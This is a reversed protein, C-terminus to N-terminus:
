ALKAYLVVCNEGYDKPCEPCTTFGQFLRETHQERPSSNRCRTWGSRLMGFPDRSCRRWSAVQSTCWRRARSTRPRKSISTRVGLHVSKAWCAGRSGRDARPCPRDQPRPEAARPFAHPRAGQRFTQRALHAGRSRDARARFSSLVGRARRSAGAPLEELRARDAAGFAVRGHLDFGDVRACLRGAREVRERASALHQSLPMGRQSGSSRWCQWSCTSRARPM